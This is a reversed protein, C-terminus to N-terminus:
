FLMEYRITDFLRVNIGDVLHSHLRRIFLSSIASPSPIPFSLAGIYNACNRNGSSAMELALINFYKEFLICSLLKM